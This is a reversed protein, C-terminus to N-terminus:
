QPSLPYSGPGTFPFSQTTVVQATESFTHKLARDDIGYLFDHRHNEQSWQSHYKEIIDLAGNTVDESFRGRITDESEIGLMFAHDEEELRDFYNNDKEQDIVSRKQVLKYYLNIEDPSALLYPMATAPRFVVPLMPLLYNSACTEKYAEFFIAKRDEVWGWDDHIDDEHECFLMRRLMTMAYADNGTRYNLEPIQANNFETSPEDADEDEEDEYMDLDAGDGDLYVCDYRAYFIDQYAKLDEPKASKLFEPHFSFSRAKKDYTLPIFPMGLTELIHEYNMFLNRDYMPIDEDDPIDYRGTMVLELVKNDLDQFIDAADKM